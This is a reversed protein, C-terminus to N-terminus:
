LLGLAELSSILSGFSQSKDRASPVNFISGVEQAIFIRQGAIDSRLINDLKEKSQLCEEPNCALLQKIETTKRSDFYSFNDDLGAIYWNEIEGFPVHVHPDIKLVPNALAKIKSVFDDRKTQPSYDGDRIVLYHLEPGSGFYQLHSDRFAALSKYTDLLHLSGAGNYNTINAPFMLWWVDGKQFIYPYKLYESEKFGFQHKLLAPFFERESGGEGLVFCVKAM